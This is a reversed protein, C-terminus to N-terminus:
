RVGPISLLQGDLLFEESELLRADFLEGDFELDGLFDLRAVRDLLGASDRVQFDEDVIRRLIARAPDLDFSFVSIVFDSPGFGPSTFSKYILIMDLTLIPHIGVVM